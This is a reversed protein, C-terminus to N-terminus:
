LFFDGYSDTLNILDHFDLKHVVKDLPINFQSLNVCIIGVILECTRDKLHIGICVAVAFKIFVIPNAM